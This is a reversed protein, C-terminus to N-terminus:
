TNGRALVDVSNLREKLRGSVEWDGRVKAGYVGEILARRVFPVFVQGFVQAAARVVAGERDGHDGNMEALQLFAECSGTLTNDLAEVADPLLDQPALLRLGNLTTLLANAYLAIPPYPVLVHPAAHPPSTEIDYEPPPTPPNSAASASVLWRSPSQSSSAKVTRTFSAGAEGFGEAVGSKVEEHFIPALHAKFDMGVRAFSTACYTLQTLLSSLAPPDSRLAPLNTKLTTLLRTLLNTTLTSLLTRVVPPPQTKQSSSTRELFITTYQTVLDYVGERWVDIYKRLYRAYSERDRDKNVGDIGKKETEVSEFSAKLYVMRSSLFALALEDEELIGMRRLFNVSKFLAPLKAQERLTSLLQALMSRIAIDVEAKVDVIIPIDPFRKALTNTHASLDLAEQFYGNRVCSEVLSPIELLDHLKDYQDLVLSTKRRESLVSKSSEGFSRTSTELAPLADSILSTLSSTVSSLTDSLTNTTSHLSLFTKYNTHCLTTLANTLQASTSSLSTPESLLTDLPLTTLHSLYSTTTPSSFSVKSSSSEAAGTSLMEALNASSAITAESPVEVIIGPLEAQETM